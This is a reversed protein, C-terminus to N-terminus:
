LTKRVLLAVNEVHHTHPFMDVPQIAQVEYMEQMMAIDRAQTAPNCSVYVVKEPKMELIRFVVKEHLGSRPPDLVVVDPFGYEECLELTLTKALDGAIFHANTIGNFDANAFADRVAPEVYEIGLVSKAQSALYLGITGTGTYLDYVVEKGTLAAYDRVTAYLSASQEVNVQYFSLPGIRFELNELYEPLYAKGDYLIPELDSYTDNKKSNIIYYLSVVAPFRNRIFDMLLAIEDPQDSSFVVIVMTEGRSNNRIVLNRMFGTHNRPNYYTYGEALTFERVANRIENSPEAQLYCHEIDLVRDFMTPLHFGLGRTDEVAEFSEGEPAVLWRRYSFTYELKNRYFQIKESALIPNLPPHPFKGIRDFADAVQKQKYELQSTYQMSQWRCGGCIGFHSCFIEARLKSYTHFKVAKGEGFNRKKKLLQIDVVDGPVVFPVFIVLEGHRAICKGESGADLIEIKELLPLPAKRKNM